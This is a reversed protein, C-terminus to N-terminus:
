ILRNFTELNIKAFLRNGSFYEIDLFNQYDLLFKGLNNSDKLFVIVDLNNMNEFEGIINSDYYVGSESQTIEANVFGVLLLNFILSFIIFINQKNM